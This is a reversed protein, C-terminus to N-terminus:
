GAGPNKAGAQAVTPEGRKDKEWASPVIPEGLDKPFPSHRNEYAMRM